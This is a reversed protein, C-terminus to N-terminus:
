SGVPPTLLAAVQAPVQNLATIEPTFDEVPPTTGAPLAAVIAAPLNTIATNLDARTAAMLKELEKLKHDLERFAELLFEKEHKTM